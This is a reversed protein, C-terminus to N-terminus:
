FHTALEEVPKALLRDMAASLDNLRFPKELFEVTREDVFRVVEPTFRTGTILIFRESLDPKSEKLQLYLEVGNMVPMYYDSIVLEFDREGIENLAETGDAALVTEFGKYSLYDCLVDRVAPDDDVVLIRSARSPRLTTLSDTSHPNPKGIM